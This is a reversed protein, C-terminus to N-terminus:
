ASRGRCVLAGRDVSYRECWLDEGLETLEAVVEPLAVRAADAGAEYPTGVYHVKGDEGDLLIWAGDFGEAVRFRMARM